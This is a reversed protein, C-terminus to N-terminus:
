LFLSAIVRNGRKAKTVQEVNVKVKVKVTTNSM